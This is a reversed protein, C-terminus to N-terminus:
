DRVRGKEEMFKKYTTMAEVGGYMLPLELAEEVTVWRAEVHEELSLNLVPPTLFSKRFRYFIYDLPPRRMYMRDIEELEAQRIRIGVEEYVERAAASRPTEGGELKGGPIGWMHGQLKHPSRKLLLIKDECECYCGAAELSPNFNKPPDLFVSNM